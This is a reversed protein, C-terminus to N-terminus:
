GSDGVAVIIRAVHSFDSSGAGSVVSSTQTNAPFSALDLVAVHAQEVLLLACCAVEVQAMPSRVTLVNSASATQVTVDAVLLWRCFSRKLVFTRPQPLSRTKVVALRM